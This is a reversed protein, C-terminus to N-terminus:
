DGITFIRGANPVAVEAQASVQEGSETDILLESTIGDLRTSSALVSPRSPWLMLVDHYDTLGVRLALMVSSSQPRPRPKDGLLGTLDAALLAANGRRDASMRGVGPSRASTLPQDYEDVTPRESGIVVKITGNAALETLRQWLLRDVREATPVVVLTAAGLASQAADEELMMPTHGTLAIADEITRSWEAVQIAGADSALEHDMLGFWRSAAVPLAPVDSSALAIRRDARVNIVALQPVLATTTSLVNSLARLRQELWSPLDDNDLRVRVEHGAASAALMAAAARAAALEVGDTGTPLWLNPAVEIPPSVSTALPYTGRRHAFETAYMEALVAHWRHPAAEVVRLFTLARQQEAKDTAWATPVNGEDNHLQRWIAIAGPHYDLAFAANRLPRGSAVDHQEVAVSVKPGLSEALAVAAQGLWVRTHEAFAPSDGSQLPVSTPPLPLWVPAGTPGRAWTAEDALVWAPVGLSAVHPGLRPGLEFRVSLGAAVALRALAALDFQGTFDARGPETVHWRWVVEVNIGNVGLAALRDLQARWKSPERTSYGFSTTIM